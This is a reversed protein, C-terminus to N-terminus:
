RAGPILLPRSCASRPIESVTADPSDTAKTPSDPQPFDVKVLIATCSSAGSDPEM